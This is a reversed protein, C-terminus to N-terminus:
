TGKGALPVTQPSTPDNDSISVNASRSGMATPTFTVTITCKSQPPLSSGCNNTQSFDNPDPGKIAIQTISLSSTGLNSLTVKVPV